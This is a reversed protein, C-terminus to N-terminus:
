IGFGVTASVPCEHNVQLDIALLCLNFPLLPEQRRLTQQLFEVGDSQPACFSRLQGCTWNWATFGQTSLVQLAGM